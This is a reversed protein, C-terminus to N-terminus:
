IEFHLVGACSFTQEQNLLFTRRFRASIIQSLLLGNFKNGCSQRNGPIGSSSKHHLFFNLEFKFSCSHWTQVSFESTLGPCRWLHHLLVTSLDQQEELHLSVFLHHFHPPGLCYCFWSGPEGTSSGLESSSCVKSIKNNHFEVFEIQVFVKSLINVQIKKGLEGKAKIRQLKSILIQWKMRDM